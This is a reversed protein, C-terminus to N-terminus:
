REKPLDFALHIELPQTYLSQYGVDADDISPILPYPDKWEGNNSLSLVREVEVVVLPSRSLRSLIYKVHEAIRKPNHFKTTSFVSFKDGEDGPSHNRYTEKFDPNKVHASEYSEVITNSKSDLHRALLERVIDSVRKILLPGGAYIHAHITGPERFYGSQRAAKSRFNFDGNKHKPM